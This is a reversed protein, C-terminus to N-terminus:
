RGCSSTQWSSRTAPTPRGRSTARPSSGCACSTLTRARKSLEVLLDHGQAVQYKRLQVVAANFTARAWIRQM